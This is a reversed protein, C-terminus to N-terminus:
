KGGPRAANMMAECNAQITMADSTRGNAKSLQGNMAVYGTAWPGIIAAVMTATLPKGLWDNLGPANEPVPAAEVGNAWEKPVLGACAAPPTSVIARRSGCGTLTMAAAAILLVHRM